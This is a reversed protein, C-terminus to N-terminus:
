AQADLCPGGVTNVLRESRGGSLSSLKVGFHDNGRHTIDLLLPLNSDFEFTETVDEPM